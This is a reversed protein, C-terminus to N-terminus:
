RILSKASIIYLILIVFSTIVGLMNAILDNVNFARWPLFYQLGETGAAFLLGLMLWLLIRFATAQRFFAWPLFMLIHFFYDCRLQLITINNLENATNIPITTLLLIAVVYIWLISKYFTTNPM